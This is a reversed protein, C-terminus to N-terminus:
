GEEDELRVLPAGAEVQAGAEALVEAVRDNPQVKSVAILQIQAPDRGAEQAAATLRTRIDTLSM